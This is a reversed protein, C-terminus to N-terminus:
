FLLNKETMVSGFILLKKYIYEIPQICEANLEDKFGNNMLSQQVDAIVQRLKEAHTGKKSCWIIFIHLRAFM